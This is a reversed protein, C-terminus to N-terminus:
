LPKFYFLILGKRQSEKKIFISIKMSFQKKPAQNYQSRSIGVDIARTCGSRLTPVQPHLDTHKFAGFHSLIIISSRAQLARSNFRL